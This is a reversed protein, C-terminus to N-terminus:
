RLLDDFERLASGDIDKAAAHLLNTIKCASACSRLLVFEIRADEIAGIHEHLERAKRKLDRFQCSINHHLDFDIDLVASEM